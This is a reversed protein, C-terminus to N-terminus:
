EDEEPGIVTKEFQRAPIRRRFMIDIERYSRGKMEPLCFYATVLCIFATGGWVYGCKGGLDGGTPNLMYSALFICPIEVIYYCARGIGTTLPRLRISSTEGIVCWSVPAAAFTFIVSVILGFSAQANRTATSEPISAAIGLAILMVVNFLTGYIYIPRRGYYTTLIWSLMVFVMQLASTILGLAFATDTSMGAQEFFYVAQNAILNGALNQAAYIGCVILTRRLDSGKFLEIYNPSDESELEVVRRMMAVTEHANVQNKKGLREVSRAAQDLKGKRVLWWPSEPAFFMLVALPTPFMWQLATPIKYASTELNGKQYSYTVAGVIISGIAWFMQLVQTAPARLRMPVIESCYAPANAIFIGWPLGELLQAVFFVPLSDAFFMIFITANMLMLGVLTAWKYGIRSTLPGALFVGILAGLQGAMQLASQWKTAIIWKQTVEDFFGFRQTFAPLAIFNGILFVDYSEMIITFSMIFAWFCAMPYARVAELVTMQHEMKEAEMADAKMENHGKTVSVDNVHEVQGKENYDAAPVIPQPVSGIENSM